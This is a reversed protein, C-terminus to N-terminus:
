VTQLLTVVFKWIGLAGFIVVCGVLYPVLLKKIEAKQDVSSYMYKIGIVLGVIVALAVGVEVFINFLNSSVSQLQATDIPNDTASQVFDDGDSMMDDLSQSSDGSDVVSPKKYLVSSRGGGSSGGTVGSGGNQEDRYDQIEKEIEDIPKGEMLGQYRIRAAETGNEEVKKDWADIVEQPINKIDDPNSKELYEYIQSLDYKKMEEIEEDSKDKVSDKNGQREQEEIKLLMEAVTENKRAEDANSSTGAILEYEHKWAQLTTKWQTLEEESLESICKPDLEYEDIMDNASMDAYVYTSGLVLIIFIFIYIIKNLKKM